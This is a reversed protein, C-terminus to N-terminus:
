GESRAWVENTAVQATEVTDYSGVTTMPSLGPPNELRVYAVWLGTTSELM